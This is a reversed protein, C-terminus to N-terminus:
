PPVLIHTNFASLIPSLSFRDRNMMNLMNIFIWLKSVYIRVKLAQAICTVILHVRFLASM